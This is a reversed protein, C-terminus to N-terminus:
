SGPRGRSEATSAVEVRVQVQVDDGDLGVVAERDEDVEGRRGGGAPRARGRRELDDQVAAPRHDAVAQGRGLAREAGEDATERRGVAEADDREVVDDVDDDRVRRERLRARGARRDRVQEGAAHRVERARQQAPQLLHAAAATTGTPAARREDQQGVAMRVDPDGVGVRQLADCPLGAGVARRHRRETEPEVVVLGQEGRDGAAAGPVRVEGLLRVGGRRQQGARDVPQELHARLGHRQQDLRRVAAV